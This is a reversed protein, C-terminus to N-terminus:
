LDAAPATTGPTFPAILNQAAFVIFLGYGLVLFSFDLRGAQISSLVVVAVMLFGQVLVDYQFM